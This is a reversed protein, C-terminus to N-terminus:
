CPAFTAGCDVCELLGDGADRNSEHSCGEDAMEFRMKDTLPVEAGDGEGLLVKRLDFARAGHVLTCGDLSGFTEGDNLFVFSGHGAVARAQEILDSLTTVADDNEMIFPEGDREEGDATMRAITDILAVAGLFRLNSM